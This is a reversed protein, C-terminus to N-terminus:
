AAVILSPFTSGGGGGSITITALAVAYLNSDCTVTPNAATASTQILYALMGGYAQGPVNPLQDTVTFGGNISTFTNVFCAGCLVLDDDESPTLSGPQGSTGSPTAGSEQDLTGTGGCSFGAVYLSPYNNGVPAGLIFTQAASVTPNACLYLQGGIPGQLTLPAWTNGESDSLPAIPFYRSVWAAFFDVGTMDITGTTLGAGTPSSLAISDIFSWPM